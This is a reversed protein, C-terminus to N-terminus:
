ILRNNIYDLLVSTLARYITKFYVFAARASALALSEFHLKAKM